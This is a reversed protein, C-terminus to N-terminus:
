KFINFFMPCYGVNGERTEKEYILTIYFAGQLHRFRGHCMGSILSTRLIQHKCTCHRPVNTVTPEKTGNIFINVCAKRRWGGEIERERQRILAILLQVISLTRCLSWARSIDCKKMAAPWEM